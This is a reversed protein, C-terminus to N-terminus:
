VADMEGNALRQIHKEYVYFFITKELFVIKEVDIHSDFYKKHGIVTLQIWGVAM